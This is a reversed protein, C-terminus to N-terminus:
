RTFPELETDKIDSLIADAIAPPLDQHWRQDDNKIKHVAYAGEVQRSTSERIFATSQATPQLGAWEFVSETESLPDAVLDSYQVLRCQQPREKSVRLFLRAADKWREFGNFEEPRGQNKAPASRWEKQPNWEPKFERPANLWSLMVACPHRVLAVVKLGDLSDLWNTLLHHYRVHKVVLYTPEASKCFTPYSGHIDSDRGLVFPDDTSMLDDFFEEVAESSSDPGLRDKFAHSFLPQYRYAVDEHANFIQGLWSTGSRPVGHILVTNLPSKSM